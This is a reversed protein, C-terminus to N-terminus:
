KLELKTYNVTGDPNRHKAGSQIEFREGYVIVHGGSFTSLSPAIDGNFLATGVIEIINHEKDLVRKTHSQYNCNLSLTLATTPAGDNDFLNNEIVVIIPTKSDADRVLRPFKSM